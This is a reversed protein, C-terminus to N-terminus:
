ELLLFIGICMFSNSAQTFGIRYINYHLITEAETVKLSLPYLGLEGFIAINTTSKHVGLVYKQYKVQIRNPV